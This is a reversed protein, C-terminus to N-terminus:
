KRNFEGWYFRNFKLSNKNFIATDSSMCNFQPNYFTKGKNALYLEIKTSNKIEIVNSILEYKLYTSNPFSNKIYFSEFYQNPFKYTYWGTKYVRLACLVLTDNNRILHLEIHRPNLLSDMISIELSDLGKNNGFYKAQYDINPQFFISDSFVFASQNKISLKKVTGMGVTDYRRSSPDNLFFLSYTSDKVKLIRYPIKSGFKQTFTLEQSLRGNKCSCILVIFVYCLGIHSRFLNM